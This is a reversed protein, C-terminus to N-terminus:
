VPADPGNGDRALDDLPRTPLAIWGERRARDLLSPPPAVSDGLAANRAAFSAIVADFADSSEVVLSEFPGLDLWSVADQLQHLLRARSAPDSRYGRTDFGWLRLSAGPYIEVVRGYGARDVDIGSDALRGLLGACRMATLGLRDTSVSLPWRGTVERVYRDTERFALTRRWAMGGEPTGPEREGLSHSAVFRVFEDPWGFACDIGLKEVSRAVSVIADDDVGLRLDTLAGRSSTWEVVALATKTQEAALDVGATLM